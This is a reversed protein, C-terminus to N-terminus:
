ASLDDTPASTWDQSTEDPQQEQEHFQPSGTAAHTRVEAIFSYGQLSALGSSDGFPFAAGREAEVYRGGAGDDLAKRIISLCIVVTADDVEFDPWVERKLEQKGVVQGNNRVLLCLAEFAKPTIPIHEGRRLLLKETPYLRFPGFSFFEGTPVPKDAPWSFDADSEPPQPMEQHLNPVRFCEQLPLLEWDPARQVTNLMEERDLKLIREPFVRMLPLEFIKDDTVDERRCFENLGRFLVERLSLVSQGYEGSYGPAPWWGFLTLVFSLDEYLRFERELLTSRYGGLIIGGAMIDDIYPLSENPDRLTEVAQRMKELLVSEDDEVSISECESFIAEQRTQFEPESQWRLSSSDKSDSKQTKAMRRRVFCTVHTRRPEHMFILYGGCDDCARVGYSRRCQPCTYNPYTGSQGVITSDFKHKCVFCKCEDMIADYCHSHFLKEGVENSALGDRNVSYNNEFARHCVACCLKQTVRESEIAERLRPIENEYYSIKDFTAALDLEFHERPINHRAAMAALEEIYAHLGKLEQEYKALRETSSKKHDADM